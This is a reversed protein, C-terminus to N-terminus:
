KELVILDSEPYKKQMFKTVLGAAKKYFKEENKIVSSAVSCNKIAFRLLVEKSGKNLRM